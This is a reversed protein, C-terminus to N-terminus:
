DDDRGGARRHRALLRALSGGDPLGRLGFALATDVKSWTEGPIGDIPGSDRMPWSGHRARFADAWALIREVTLPALKPKKRADRQARLFQALSSGGVLGHRGFRFAQDVLNWTIEAAGDIPGSKRSPWRGLRGHYVDAWALVQRVTLRHARAPSVGRLESLLRSLSWGKPLGRHGERLAQEVALWTLGPLDDIAGSRQTPWRGHRRHHRDAFRLIQGLSLRRHGGGLRKGVARGRRRAGRRAALLLALSSGGVLRRRGLRLAADIAKWTERPAGDLRGSNSTPWRGHKARYADAWAMIQHEDLASSGRMSRCKSALLRALSSGGALGMYGFRLAQDVLSWTTGPLGGIEGARQTPWRGHLAHYARACALIRALDLTM